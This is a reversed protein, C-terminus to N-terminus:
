NNKYNKNNRITNLSKKIIDQTISSMYNKIWNQIDPKVINQIENQLSILKYNKNKYPSVEIIDTLILIKDQKIKNVTYNNRKKKSKKNKTDLLADELEKMASTINKKLAKELVM